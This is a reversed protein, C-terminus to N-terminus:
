LVRFEFVAQYPEKGDIEVTARWDRRGHHCMPLMAQGQWVNGSQRNLNFRNLGMDMGVMDFRVSVKAVGAAAAEGALEVQVNFPQLPKVEGSLRLQVTLRADGAACPQRAPDCASPASLQMTGGANDAALGTRWPPYLICLAASLCLAISGSWSSHKSLM